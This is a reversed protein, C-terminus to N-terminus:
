GVSSTRTLRLVYALLLELLVSNRFDHMFTNYNDVSEHEDFVGIDRLQHNLMWKAISSQVVNTRDLNDMCNTRVVGLQLKVLEPRDADLYFYRLHFTDAEGSVPSAHVISGTEYYTM